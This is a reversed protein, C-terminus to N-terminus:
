ERFNAVTVRKRGRSAGEEDARGELWNIAQTIERMSRFVRTQGDFTYSKTLFTGDALDNRYAALLATYNSFTAM